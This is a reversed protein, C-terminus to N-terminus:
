GKSGLRAVKEIVYGGVDGGPWTVKFAAGVAIAGLRIDTRWFREREDRGAGFDMLGSADLAFPRCQPAGASVAGFVTWKGAIRNTGPDIRADLTIPSEAPDDSWHALIRMDVPATENM